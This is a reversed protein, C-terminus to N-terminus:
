YGITCAIGVAGPGTGCAWAVRHSSVSARSNATRPALLWLAVSAAAFFGASAFGVIEMTRAADGRDIRDQCVVPQFSSDLGPCFPDDNYTAVASEHVGVGVIGIALAAVAGGAAVFALPRLISGREAREPELTISTYTTTAGIVTLQRSVTRYGAARVELTVDGAVVRIPEALPVHGIVSGNVSVEAGTVAGDLEITAVHQSITAYAQEIAARNADIWANGHIALAARVHAESSLWAGIAQEALGMQALAIPSHDVEYARAFTALADADRNQRRLDVGERLLADSSASQARATSAALVAAIAVAAAVRVTM